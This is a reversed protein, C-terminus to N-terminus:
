REGGGLSELAGALVDLAIELLPIKQAAEWALSNRLNEMLPSQDREEERLERGLAALDRIVPLVDDLLDVAQRLPANRLSTM